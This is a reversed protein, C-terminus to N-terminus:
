FLWHISSLLGWLAMLPIYAYAVLFPLAVLWDNENVAEQEHFNACGIIAMIASIGIYWGGTRSESLVPLLYNIQLRTAVFAIIVGALFLAVVVWRGQGSQTLAFGTALGYIVFGLFVALAVTGVAALFFM